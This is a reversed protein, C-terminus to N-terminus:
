VRYTGALKNTIELSFTDLVATHHILAKPKPTFGRRSVSAYQLWLPTPMGVSTIQSGKLTGPEALLQRATTHM